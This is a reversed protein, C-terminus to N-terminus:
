TKCYKKQLNQGFALLKNRLEVPELLEIGDKLSLVWSMLYEEDTFGFSFELLGDDREIFSDYGYDDILRWKYKPIVLAKAICIHPFVNDNSLDPMPVSRKEFGEGIQMGFMRALKFMRFDERSKCFGWLYWGSWKFMLYYPEVTRKSEGSPSSYEFNVYNGCDIANQLLEIKAAIEAKNWSALDILISQGGKITSSAGVSLREMLQSYRNTGSVSDLSRLGTLIAQMDASTLLARDIKYGDMISIGGNQGQATVIPIGAICLSEIDRNITRRSVEFKEALFPATVKETQLLISLIGILRDIKM